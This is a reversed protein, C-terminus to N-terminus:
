YKTTGATLGSVIHKQWRLFVLIVPVIVFITAAMIVGWQNQGEQNYLQALGVSLVRMNSTNTVVLPWLFDNWKGVLTILAGTVLVPRSVPLLVSWLTRLHGAGDLRAAEVLERPITTFHQRLLFAAVVTAAGPVIIGQYTNVWGLSSVTAYNAIMTAHIPVMLAAVLALFFLNKGPFRLFVLAYAVLVADVMEIATGFFAVIVTNLYYRGFPAAQWAEVYNSFKPHLPIWQPPFTYIEGLTKLSGSLMWFVPIVFLLAVLLLLAYSVARGIYVRLVREEM